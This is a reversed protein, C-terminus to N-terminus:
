RSRCLQLVAPISVTLEHPIYHWYHVRSVAKSREYELMQKGSIGSPKLDPPLEINAPLGFEVSMNNHM